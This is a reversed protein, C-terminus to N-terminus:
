KEHATLQPTKVTNELCYSSGFASGPKLLSLNLQILEKLKSRAVISDVISNSAILAMVEDKALNYAEKILESATYENIGYHRITVCTSAFYVQMTFGSSNNVIIFGLNNIQTTFSYGIHSFSFSNCLKTPGGPIINNAIGEEGDGGGDEGCIGYTICPDIDEEWVCVEVWNWLPVGDIWNEPNDCRNPEDGNHASICTQHYGAIQYEDHCVQGTEPERDNKALHLKYKKGDTIKWASIPKENWNRVYMIGEFNKEIQQLNVGGLDFNQSLAFSYTPV